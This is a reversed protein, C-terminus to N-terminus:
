LAGRRKVEIYANVAAVTAQDPLQDLIRAGAISLSRALAEREDLTEAAVAMRWPDEPRAPADRSTREVSPDRMAVVVPLHRTALRGMQELLPRSHAEDRLDTLTVVLARRTQRSLVSRVMEKYDVYTPSAEAAYLAELIRRYQLRGKGPPVFALAEDAFLLLGVRDDCRLAVFALLLAANVAHDLKSIGGARAGMLRGSDVCVLLTQSREPERTRVIPEDRRATAKWDIQRYDDGLTYERLGSLEGGEGERRVIRMGLSALDRAGGSLLLRGAGRMDPYVRAETQAYAVRDASALGLPGVVRVHIEDLDYRGRMPPTLRVKKESTSFPQAEIRLIDAECEFTPPLGPWISAAVPRSGRNDVCLLAENRVGVSLRRGLHRGVSLPHKRAFIYDVAFLLLLAASLGMALPVIWPATPALLLAPLPLLLLAILRGTPVPAGGAEVKFHRGRDISRRRQRSM